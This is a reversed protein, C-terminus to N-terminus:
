DLTYVYGDTEYDFAMFFPIKHLDGGIQYVISQMIQQAQSGERKGPLLDFAEEHKCLAAAFNYYNEKTPLCLEFNRSSAYRFLESTHLDPHRSHFDDLYDCDLAVVLYFTELIFSKFIKCDTYDSLNLQMDHAYSSYQALFYPDADFLPETCQVVNSRPPVDQM